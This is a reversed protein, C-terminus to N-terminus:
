GYSFIFALVHLGNYHYVERHNVHSYRERSCVCQRPVRYHEVRCYAVSLNEYLYVSRYAVRFNM